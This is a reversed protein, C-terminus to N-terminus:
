KYGLRYVALTLAWVQNADTAIATGDLNTVRVRLGGSKLILSPAQALRHGVVDVAVGASTSMNGATSGVVLLPVTGDPLNSTANITPLTPVSVAYSVASRGGGEVPLSTAFSEAFVHWRADASASSPSYDAPLQINNFQVDYVTGNLQTGYSSCLYLRFAVVPREHTSM